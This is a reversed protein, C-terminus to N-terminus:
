ATVGQTRLSEALETTISAPIAVPTGKERASIHPASQELSATASQLSISRGEAVFRAARRCARVLQNDPSFEWTLLPHQALGDELAQWFVGARISTGRASEDEYHDLATIEDNCINVYCPEKLHDLAYTIIHIHALAPDLQDDAVYSIVKWLSDHNLLAIMITRRQIDDAVASAYITVVRRESETNRGAALAAATEQLETRLRRLTRFQAWSNEIPLAEDAIRQCATVLPHEPAENIEDFAHHHLEGDLQRRLKLETEDDTVRLDTDLVISRFEKSPAIINLRTPIRLQEVAFHLATLYLSNRSLEGETTKTFARWYNDFNLLACIVSKNEGEAVAIYINVTDTPESRFLVQMSRFLELAKQMESAPVFVQPWSGPTGACAMWGNAAAAELNSLDHEVYFSEFGTSGGELKISGAKEGDQNNLLDILITGQREEPQGDPLRTSQLTVIIPTPKM